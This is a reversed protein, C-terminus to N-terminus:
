VQKETETPFIQNPHGRPTSPPGYLNKQMHAQPQSAIGSNLGTLTQNHCERRDAHQSM